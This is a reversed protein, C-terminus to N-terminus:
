INFLNPHQTTDRNLEETEYKVLRTYEIEINKVFDDSQYKEVYVGCIDIIAGCLINIIGKSKEKEFFVDYVIDGGKTGNLNHRIKGYFIKAGVSSGHLSKELNAYQGRELKGFREDLIRRLAGESFERIFEKDIDSNKEENLYKSLLEQKLYLAGAMRVSRLIITTMAFASGYLGREWLIKVAQVDILLKNSLLLYAELFQDHDDKKYKEIANNLLKLFLKYNRRLRKLEKRYFLTTIIRM